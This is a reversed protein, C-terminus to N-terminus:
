GQIYSSGRYFSPPETPWGLASLAAASLARFEAWAPHSALASEVWVDPHAPGSWADIRAALRDLAGQQESTFTVEAMAGDLVRDFELVLEDPICVFWPFLQIQQEATAALAQLAGRLQDLAPIVVTPFLSAIRSAPAPQDRRDRRLNWGQGYRTRLQTEM